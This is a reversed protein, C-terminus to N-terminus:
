VTAVHLHIDAGGPLASEDAYTPCEQAPVHRGVVILCQQHADVTCRGRPCLRCTAADAGSAWTRLIATGSSGQHAVKTRIPRPQAPLTRYAGL